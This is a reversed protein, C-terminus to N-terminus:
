EQPSETEGICVGGGGLDHIHCHVIRNDKCGRGLWMAYEGLHAVECDEFACRRAGNAHIAGKLFMVGAQGDAPGKNEVFWDAHQFSLGRFTIHEM